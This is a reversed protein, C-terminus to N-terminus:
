RGPRSRASRGLVLPPLGVPVVVEDGPVLRVQVDGPELVRAEGVTTFGRRLVPRLKGIGDSPPVQYKILFREDANTQYQSIGGEGATRRRRRTM